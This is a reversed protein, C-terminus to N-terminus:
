DRSLKQLHHITEELPQDIFVFFNLFRLINFGSGEVSVYAKEQHVELTDIPLIHLGVEELAIM